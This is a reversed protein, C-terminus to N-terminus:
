KRFGVECTQGAKMDFTVIGDAATKFKVPKGAVRIKAIQQGVPPCIKLPCDRDVRLIAKTARGNQWAIDVEVGGRARLGQVSGNPWAKKPLAPLLAIEGAHSQLLMECVGATYGFNGDIQFPPHACLLSTYLGGGKYNTRTDCVLRILSGILKHARDGDGLRAWLNVKWATSWGTSEDGRANLSIRAAEALAPTARPTIQRGPYVAVLHSLHRHTNKPNDRDVMWEQLQGWKGIKPGLLKDRKAALIDRFDRDVGLADAAEVTNSFLDWVLQQDHSVGDERPGHEPSYGNPAVLTGNPLAKLRDLWFECVEKMMPYAFTRLYDKDGTFAYHDWLNQMCWASSSDIWKWTSGGFLGNEARMTWGRTKFAKRTAEKRVERISDLWTALPLFCDGLNATDALWYNMQINVDSHFDCRWPPQNSNNWLGQLNAPLVDRSSSILLYRGYQFLLADLGPDRNGKGYELLWEDTPLKAASSGLYIAVRNFLKQYDAVHEALLVPLSKKAATDLSTTIREHPHKGRWGRSRQNVFNTGADILVTLSDVNKFKIQGDTADLSGGENLVLVQSEYDLAFAYPTGGDKRYRYNALSGTLILRNEAATIKGKHTDTLRVSGTYVGPKDATFRLVIVGAPHSAFAERRYKVGDKTYTVAHVARGIDLERRYAEAPAAGTVFNILVDGFAQYAGTRHEDGIWLSSENFQIKEQGVGSFLMCGLRGNGIPLAEHWQKAPQTYWLFLDDQEKATATAFFLLVLAVAPITNKQV